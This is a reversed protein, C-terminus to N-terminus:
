TLVPTPGLSGTRSPLRLENVGFSVRYFSPLALDAGSIGKTQSRPQPRNKEFRPKQKRHLHFQLSSGNQTPGLGRRGQRREQRRRDLFHVRGHRADYRELGLGTTTQGRRSRGPWLFFLCVFLLVVDVWYSGSTTRLLLLLELGSRCRFWGIATSSDIRPHLEGSPIAM